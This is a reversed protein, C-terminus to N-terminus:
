VGLAHFLVFRQYREAYEPELCPALQSAGSVDRCLLTESPKQVSPTLCERASRSLLSKQIRQACETGYTGSYLAPGGWAESWYAALRETHRPHFGHSFAHSVVEDALVREHWAYALRLIGSLGGLSEFLTPKIM